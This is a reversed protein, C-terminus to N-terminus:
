HVHLWKVICSAVSWGHLEAWLKQNSRIKCKEWRYLGRKANKTHGEFNVSALKGNIVCRVMIIGVYIYWQDICTSVQNWASRPPTWYHLRARNRPRYSYLVPPPSTWYVMLQVMETWLLTPPTAALYRVTLLTAVWLSQSSTSGVNATGLWLVNKSRASNFMLTKSTSIRRNIVSM